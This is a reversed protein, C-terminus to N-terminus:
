GIFGRILDAVAVLGVLLGGLTQARTLRLRGQSATNAALAERLRRAEAESVIKSELVSVRTDSETRWADLARLRWRVERMYATLVEPDASLPPLDDHM